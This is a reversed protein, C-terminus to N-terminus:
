TSRSRRRAKRPAATKKKRWGSSQRQRGVDGATVSPAETTALQFDTRVGETGFTSVTEDHGDRYRVLAFIDYDTARPWTCTAVIRQTKSITVQEGKRLNITATRKGLDIADVGPKRLNITPAAPEAPPM